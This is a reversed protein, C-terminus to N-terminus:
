VVEKAPAAAKKLETDVVKTPIAVYGMKKPSVDDDSDDESDEFDFRNPWFLSWILYMTTIRTRHKNAQDAMRHQARQLHYQLLQYKFERTLLSKDVEEMALDGAMYPLHLPPPQGYLAEYPTTQISSHFITNYWWETTALYYSWDKQSDSCFCRLYTELCRSVVETQGDSQPHYATSISLTVGSMSFLEQWLRSTFVLDRDSVIDEPMGHLRFVHEMFLKAIDTATYSHAVGIFHAYKTLRDVVVWIVTKGKSKPLGEIFDM